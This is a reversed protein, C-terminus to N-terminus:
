RIGRPAAANGALDQRFMSENPDTRLLGELRTEFEPLDIEGRAFRDRLVVMPDEAPPPAVVDMTTTPSAGFGCRPGMAGRHHSLRIAILVAMAMMPIVFLVPWPFFGWGTPMM